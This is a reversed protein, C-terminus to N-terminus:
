KKGKQSAMFQKLDAMKKTPEETVRTFEKLSPLKKRRHTAEQTWIAWLRAQVTAGCAKRTLYPTLEWFEVPSIGASVAGKFADV